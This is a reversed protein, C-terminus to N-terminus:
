YQLYLCLSWRLFFINVSNIVCNDRCLCMGHFFDNMIYYDFVSRKFPFLSPPQMQLGSDRQRLFLCTWVSLQHLSLFNQKERTRENALPSLSWVEGIKGLILTWPLIAIFSRMENGGWCRSLYPSPSQKCILSQLRVTMFPDTCFQMVTTVPALGFEPRDSGSFLEEREVM